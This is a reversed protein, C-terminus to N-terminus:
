RIAISVKHRLGINTQLRPRRLDLYRYKLRLDEAADVEDDIPFPPTEARSLLEISTAVVEVDGTAMKPNKTSEARERVEGAIRVVYESRLEKAIALLEDSAGKSRDVVVQVIGSRDRVDIFVLEGFDRQKQVWGAITASTGSHEKNLTGAYSRNM